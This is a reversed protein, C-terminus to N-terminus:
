EQTESPEYGPIFDGTYSIPNPTEKLSATIHETEESILLATNDNLEQVAEDYDDLSITGESLQLDLLKKRDELEEHKHLFIDEPDVETEDSDPDDEWVSHFTKKEPEGSDIPIDSKTM